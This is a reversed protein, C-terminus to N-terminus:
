SGRLMDSLYIKGLYYIQFTSKEILNDIEVFFVKQTKVLFLISLFQLDVYDVTCM